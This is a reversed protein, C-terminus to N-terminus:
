LEASYIQYYYLDDSHGYTFSLGQKEAEQIVEEVEEFSPTLYEGDIKVQEIIEQVKM